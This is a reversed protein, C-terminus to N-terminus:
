APGSLGSRGTECRSSVGRSMMEFRPPAVPPVDTGPAGTFLVGHELANMGRVPVATTQITRCSPCISLPSIPTGGGTQGADRLPETHSIVREVM